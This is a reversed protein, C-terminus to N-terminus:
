SRSRGNRPRVAGFFGLSKRTPHFLMRPQKDEPPVWMRCSTGHLHFLVEDLFWVDLDPDNMMSMTKKFMEMLEPDGGATMPRPKRYRFGLDNLLRQCQRVGLEKGLRIRIFQSLCRGDWLNCDLGAEMPEGRLALNIVDLDEATLVNPRGTRDQGYVGQLGREEFRKVWTQVSRVSDGLLDAVEQCTHGKAVLLLAHLKHDYRADKNRKIEDQLAMVILPADAIQLRKMM